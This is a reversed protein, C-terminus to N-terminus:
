PSFPLMPPLSDLTALYAKNDDISFSIIWKGSEHKVLGCCYEIGIKHFYFLTSIEMVTYNLLRVFRHYYTRSGNDNTCVEHVICIDSGDEDRVLPSSGRANPLGPKRIIENLNADLRVVEPGISYIMSGDSEPIWNKQCVNDDVGSLLTYDVVEFDKTLKVRVMKNKGSCGPAAYCTGLAIFADETKVMRIDELGLIIANKNEEPLRLNLNRWTINELKLSLEAKAEFALVQQQGMLVTESNVKGNCIYQGNKICYNVHRVIVGGDFICPNSAYMGPLMSKLETRNQIPLAHVVYKLNCIARNQLASWPQLSFYDCHKKALAKQGMFFGAITLHFRFIDYYAAEEPLKDASPRPVSLGDLCLQYTVSHAKLPELWRVIAARAENRMPKDTMMKFLVDLKGAIRASEVEARYRRNPDSDLAACRNFLVKAETPLGEPELTYAFDFCKEAGILDTASVQM